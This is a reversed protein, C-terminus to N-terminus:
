KAAAKRCYGMRTMAHKGIRVLWIEADPNRALLEEAASGADDDLVYSGTDVDIAAAQGDYRGEVKSRIERNYIEDGRRAVEENPYRYDSM